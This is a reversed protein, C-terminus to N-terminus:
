VRGYCRIPVRGAYLFAVVRYLRYGVHSFYDSFAVFRIVGAGRNRDVNLTILIPLRMIVLDLPVAAKFPAATKRQLFRLIDTPKGVTNRIKGNITTRTQAPHLLDWRAALSDGVGAWCCRASCVCNASGLIAAHLRMVFSSTPAIWCAVIVSAFLLAPTLPPM